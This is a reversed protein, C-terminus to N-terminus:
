SNGEDLYFCPSNKEIEFTRGADHFFNYLRTENKHLRDLVFRRLRQPLSGIFFRIRFKKKGFDPLRPKEFDLFENRSPDPFPIPGISMAIPVHDNTLNPSKLKRLWFHARLEVSWVLVGSAYEMKKVVLSKVKGVRVADLLDESHTLVLHPCRNTKAWPSNPMFRWEKPCECYGLELVESTLLRVEQVDQTESKGANFEAPLNHGPSVLVCNKKEKSMLLAGKKLSESSRDPCSQGM